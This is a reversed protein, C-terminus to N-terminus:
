PFSVYRIATDIYHLKPEGTSILYGDKYKM